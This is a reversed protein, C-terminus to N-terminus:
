RELSPPSVHDRTLLEPPRRSDKGQYKEGICYVYREGRLYIERGAIAAPLADRMRRKAADTIRRDATGFSENRGPILKERFAQMKTM